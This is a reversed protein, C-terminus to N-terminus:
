KPRHFQSGPGNPKRNKQKNKGSQNKRKKFPGKRKSKRDGARPNYEPGDGLGSPLRPKNVENGILQEIRHFKYQEDQNILTIAVGDSSARATRGIRHIYDEGDHPVDFNIIMDIDEIDIGRSIIDTAVLISVKRNRFDLLVKERQEQSLDSHIQEVNLGNRHLQIFLDKTSKKTSCFVICSKLNKDKVIQEILPIKQNNYVSYALQLVKEAPKSIAINIEEPNHLIKRALTRIKPPMTAAFLLSQKKEPLYSSIKLIDEHFGMDLMRDAEDLVFFELQDVKVYEQNLHSIIKGPTCIVIDAGESLAKKEQVFSSGDNGGYVAISTVPTFYAFGDMQQDIQMALERTPVVILAKISDHDKKDLLKQILPLLFAATKGTGTQASAIVDKGSLIIPIAQEQVPSPTEFGFSDIADFVRPDFNFDTFNM